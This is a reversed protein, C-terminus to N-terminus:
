PIFLPHVNESGLASRLRAIQDDCSESKLLALMCGGGGAGCIKVTVKGLQDCITKLREIEPSSFAKTLKIRAKYESKLLKSIGTGDGELLAVKM